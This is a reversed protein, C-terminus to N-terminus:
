QMEKVRLVTDALERYGCYEFAEETKDEAFHVVKYETEADLDKQEIKVEVNNEPQYHIDQDSEDVVSVDYLKVYALSDSGITSKIEDIYSDYAEDSKDIDEINLVATESFGEDYTVSVGIDEDEFRLDEPVSVEESVDETTESEAAETEVSNEETPEETIDETTDDLVVEETTSGEESAAFVFSIPVCQIVMCMTVLIVFLKQKM